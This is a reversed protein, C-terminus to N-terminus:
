NHSITEQEISNAVKTTTNVSRGDFDVSIHKGKPTIIATMLRNLIYIDYYAFLRL